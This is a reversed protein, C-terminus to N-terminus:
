ILFKGACWTQNSSSVDNEPSQLKRYGVDTVWPPKEIKTQSGEQNRLLLTQGLCRRNQQNVVQGLWLWWSQSKVFFTRGKHRRLVEVHRSSDWGNVRGPGEFQNSCLIPGQKNWSFLEYVWTLFLFFRCLSVLIGELILDWNIFGSKTSSRNMNRDWMIGSHPPILDQAGLRPLVETACADSWAADDPCMAYTLMWCISIGLVYSEYLFWPWKLASFMSIWQFGRTGWWFFFAREQFGRNKEGCRMLGVEIPVLGCLHWRGHKGHCSVHPVPSWEPPPSVAATIIHPFYSGYRPKPGDSRKFDQDWHQFDGTKIPFAM